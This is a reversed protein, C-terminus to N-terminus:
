AQYRKVQIVQALIEFHKDFSFVECRNEKTNLVAM